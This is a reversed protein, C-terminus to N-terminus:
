SRTLFLNKMMNMMNMGVCINKYAGKQLLHMMVVDPNSFTKNKCRRCLCRIGHESINPTIWSVDMFSWENSIDFRYVIIM